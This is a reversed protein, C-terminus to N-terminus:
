LEKEVETLTHDIIDLGVDAEDKTITLPPLIRFTSPGCPFLLLGNEFARYVFRDRLEQAVAKTHKDKVLEIGIMLGKGRVDGISSHCAQLERMRKQIHNGVSNIHNLLGHNQLRDILELAMRCAIPNGGNTSGHSGDSWSAVEEKMITAGLATGNGLGKATIIIDPNINYHDSCFIKGTRGMGTQVEDAILLIGHNKCLSEMQRMFWTPPVRYGGEGQMPEFVIGAYASPAHQCFLEQELKELSDLGTNRYTDPYAIHTVDYSTCFGEQQKPHSATFSLSGTSRGHFGRYFALFRQRGTHYTAIKAACEIAETGSNSFFTRRTGNGPSIESLKECLAGYYEHGHDLGTSHIIKGAQEVIIQQIRPDNGMSDAGLGASFDLFYNDDLDYIYRGIRRDAIFPYPRDNCRPGYREERALCEQVKPGPLSFSVKPALSPKDIAIHGQDIVESIDAKPDLHEYM